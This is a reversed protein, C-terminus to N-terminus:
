KKCRGAYYVDSVFVSRKIVQRNAIEYGKVCVKNDTLWGELMKMRSAEGDADDPYQPAILTKFTFGSGDPTPVFDTATVRDMSEACGALGIAAALVIARM